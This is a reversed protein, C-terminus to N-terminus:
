DLRYNSKFLDITYRTILDYIIINKLESIHLSINNSKMKLQKDETPVILEYNHEMLTLVCFHVRVTSQDFLFIPPLVEIETDNNIQLGFKDEVQTKITSTIDLKDEVKFQLVSIFKDIEPRIINYTDNVGYRLLLEHSQAIYPLCVVIDTMQIKNSNHVNLVQFDDADFIVKPQKNKLNSLLEM